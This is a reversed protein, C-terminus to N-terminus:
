YISIGSGHSKQPGRRWRDKSGWAVHVPNRSTEAYM